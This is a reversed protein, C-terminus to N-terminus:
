VNNGLFSSEFYPKEKPMTKMGKINSQSVLPKRVLVINMIFFCYLVVYPQKIFIVFLTSPVEKTQKRIINHLSKVNDVWKWKIRDPFNKSYSPVKRWICNNEWSLIWKQQKQELISM